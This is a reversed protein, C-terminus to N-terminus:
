FVMRFQATLSSAEPVREGKRLSGEIKFFMLADKGFVGSLSKTLTYGVSIEGFGGLGPSAIETSTGGSTFTSVRDGQFDNYYNAAISVAQGAGGATEPLAKTLQAGGFVVFSDYDGVDLTSDADFRIRGAKTHGISFGGSPAVSWSNELRINYQLRTNLSITDSSMHPDGSASFINSSTESFDYDAHSYRLQVDASLQGKRGSVYIGGYTQSFDTTLTGTQAGVTGTGSVAFEDQTTSGNNAGGTAGFVLSWGDFRGDYCGYDASAQLSTYDGKVENSLGSAIQDGQITATGIVARGYSASRCAEGSSTDAVLSFPSVPRNILSSLMQETLTLNAAVGGVIPNSETRLVLNNAGDLTVYSIKAGASALAAGSVTGVTIGGANTVLTIDGLAGAGNVTGDLDFGLTATALGATTLVESGGSMEVTATGGLTSGFTLVSGDTLDFTAGTANVAAGITADGDTAVTGTTNLTGTLAGGSLTLTGSNATTGSVTGGNLLFTGSNTLASLAGGTMDTTGSNTLGTVTGGTINLTGANSIGGSATGSTTLTGGANNTALGALTGTNANTVTGSNSLTGSLTGANSLTAGTTNTVAGAM